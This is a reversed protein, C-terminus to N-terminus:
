TLPERDIVILCASDGQAICTEEVVNYFNGGSVWYLAEQLMGVSFQCVPEFVQRGLCWPCSEIEWLIKRASEKLSVKQDTHQNFFDSMAHLVAMLKLDSPQLRFDTDNLGLEPGYTRLGNSFFVRGARLALGRGGRPGFGREMAMQVRSFIEFPLIKEDDDPPYNGILSSLSALNLTANLGNKGMVEEFALIMIRGLRNPLYRDLTTNMM